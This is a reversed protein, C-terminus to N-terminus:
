LIKRPPEPCEEETSGPGGCFASGAEVCDLEVRSSCRCKPVIGFLLIVISILGLRAGAAACQRCSGEGLPQVGGTPNRRRVFAGRQVIEALLREHGVRRVVKEVRVPPAAGSSADKHLPSGSPMVARNESEPHVPETVGIGTSSVI